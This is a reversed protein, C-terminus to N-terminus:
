IGEVYDRNVDKYLLYASKTWGTSYFFQPCFPAMYIFDNEKVEIFDRNLWYLGRGKTMYLGHEMIHSEVFSFYVGPDFVQLNIGMDFAPDEYPTLHQEMYTDTPKAPVDSEHAVIPSPMSADPSEVYRRRIWIVRALDGDPNALEFPMHPPLWSFGGEILKHKKGCLDLGISGQQVYLFHEFDEDIPRVTKGGTEFFLEHEVFRAGVQPTALVQAQVGEFGPLKSFVRNDGPLITYIGPKSIARCRTTVDADNVILMETQM